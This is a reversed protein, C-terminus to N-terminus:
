YQTVLYSYNRCFKSVQLLQMVKLQVDEEFLAVLLMFDQM